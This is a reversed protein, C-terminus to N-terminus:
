DEELVITPTSSGTVRFLSLSSFVNSIVPIDISVFTVVKVYKKTKGNGTEKYEKWCWGDEECTYDSYESQLKRMYQVSASYGIKDAYTSIKAKITDDKHLSDDNSDIKSVDNEYAKFAVLLKNKVQFARNYNIVYAMFSSIILISAFVLALSYTSGIADRM